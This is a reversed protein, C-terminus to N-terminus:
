KSQVASAVLVGSSEQYRGTVVVSKGLLDRIQGEVDKDGPLLRRMAHGTDEMELAFIAKAADCQGPELPVFEQASRVCVIKGAYRQNQEVAGAPHETDVEPNRSGPPELQPTEDATAVGATALAAAAILGAISKRLRM